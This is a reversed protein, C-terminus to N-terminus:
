VAQPSTRCQLWTKSTSIAQTQLQLASDSTGLPGTCYASIYHALLQTAEAHKDRNPAIDDEDTIWLLNQSEGRVGELLIGALHGITTLKRFARPAWVGIRGFATETQPEESFRYAANKDIAFNVLLGEIQDVAELYGPLSKLRLKDNLREYAMRRETGLDRDRLWQRATWWKSLGYPTTVLFSFVEFQAGKHAGGYDSFLGLSPATRISGM